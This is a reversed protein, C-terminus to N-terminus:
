ALDRNVVAADLAAWTKPGVIGDVTLRAATQFRKVAFLTERGFLGDQEVQLGVACLLGQLACIQARDRSGM